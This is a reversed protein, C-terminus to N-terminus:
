AEQRTDFSVGQWMRDLLARSAQLAVQGNEEIKFTRRPKGGSSPEPDSYLSSAYGKAELRELTGYVAGIAVDRGSTAQLERRVEMGYGNGGIRVLALLVLQEFEGLHDGKSM